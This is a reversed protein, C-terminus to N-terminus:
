HCREAAVNTTRTAAMESALENETPSAELEELTLEFEDRPVSKALAMVIVYCSM